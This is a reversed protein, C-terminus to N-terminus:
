PLGADIDANRVELIYPSRLQMLAQAEAWVNTGAFARLLKLAVTTDLHRDVVRYVEGFGGGGLYGRVEYRSDILTGASLAMCQLTLNWRHLRDSDAHMNWSFVPWRGRDHDQAPVPTARDLNIVELQCAVLVIQRREKVFEARAQARMQRPQCSIADDDPPGIDLDRRPLLAGDEVVRPLRGPRRRM